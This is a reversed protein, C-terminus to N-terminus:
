RAHASARRAEPDLKAPGIARSGAAFRRPVVARYAKQRRASSMTSSAASAAAARVAMSAKAPVTAAASSPPQTVSGTTRASASVTRRNATGRAVISSM